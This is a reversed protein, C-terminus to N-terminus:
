IKPGMIWIQFSRPGMALAHWSQTEARLLEHANIVLLFSRHCDLTITLLSQSGVHQSETKFVTSVAAVHWSQTEPRLLEHAGVNSIVFM